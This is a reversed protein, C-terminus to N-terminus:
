KRGDKEIDEERDIEGRIYVGNCVAFINDSIFGVNKM